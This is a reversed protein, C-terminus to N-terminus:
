SKPAHARVQRSSVKEEALRTVIGSRLADPDKWFAHLRQKGTEEDPAEVEYTRQLTEITEIRQKRPGAMPDTTAQDDQM